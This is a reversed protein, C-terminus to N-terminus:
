VSVPRFSEDLWMKRPLKDADAESLVALRDGYWEFWLEPQAEAAIECILQRRSPLLACFRQRRRPVFDPVGASASWGNMMAVTAGYRPGDRAADLGTWVIVSHLDDACISGVEL